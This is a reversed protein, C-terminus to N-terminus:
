DLEYAVKLANEIADATKELDQDTHKISIFNCEFQSPPIFVNQKLLEKFYVNFHKTDSKQADVYNHVENPNFYVQFMSGIGVPQVNLNLDEVTDSISERLDQSKTNIDNYFDYDLQKMTAIGAAMSVPNGSLTGAQYIPGSPAFMEMIDRRGAIAGIPFGGALIKAFTALDPKINFYEQAGGRAIRFGTIVEDFILLIGKERTIERVFELFGEDPVVCGINGMVPEIIVAAIDDDNKMILDTLADEDNYPCSLTNLTTEEPIGLSDPKCAGGSGSKVLVYDHAGHYAGEFKIIKNKGTFGRALRIASMTAETGSNCFRVMEACPVRDIVERALEIEKEHPAGFDNGLKLQQVVAHNLVNNAHGLILPGYALCHDIYANGEEDYIKSGHGKKVFFPYPEYARVPSNVGGPMCKKALEYLEKSNM